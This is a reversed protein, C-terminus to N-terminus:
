EQDPYPFGPNNKYINKKYISKKLVYVNNISGPIENLNFSKNQTNITNDNLEESFGDVTNKKNNYGIAENIYSTTSKQAQIIMSSGKYELPDENPLSIDM